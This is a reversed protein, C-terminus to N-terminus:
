SPAPGVRRGTLVTLPLRIAVDLPGPVWPELLGTMARVAVPDTVLEAVGTAVVSWGSRTVPDIEDAQLALVGGEAARALRSGASTRCVAAGDHLAFAVPVVAPLAGVTFIFRGVAAGGLLRVCEDRSLHEVSPASTAHGRQM